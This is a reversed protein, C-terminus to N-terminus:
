LPQTAPEPEDSPLAPSREGQHALVAFADRLRATFEDLDVRDPWSSTVGVRFAGRYRVIAVSVSQGGFLPVFPYLERVEAGGLTHPRSPGPVNTILIGYSRLSRALWHLLRQSWLGTWATLEGLVEYGEADGRRKQEATHHRIRAVRQRAERTPVELPTLLLGLRNGLDHREARTRLSVPIAARTNNTTGHGRLGGLAHSVAALLMDNASGLLPRRALLFPRDPVDFWSVGREGEDSGHLSTTPGPTLLRVCTRLFAKGRRVVDRRRGPDTALSFARSGLM